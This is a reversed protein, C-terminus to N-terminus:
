SNNLFKIVLYVFALKGFFAIGLRKFFISMPAARYKDSRSIFINSSWWGFISGAAFAVALLSIEKM